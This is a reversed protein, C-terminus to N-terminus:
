LIATKATSWAAALGMMIGSSIAMPRVGATCKFLACQNHVKSQESREKPIGVLYIRTFDISQSRIGVSVEGALSDEVGPGQEQPTPSYIM